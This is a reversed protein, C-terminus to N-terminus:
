VNRSAKDPTDAAASRQPTQPANLSFSAYRENKQPKAAPNFAFKVGQEMLDARITSLANAVRTIPMDAFRGRSGFSQEYAANM